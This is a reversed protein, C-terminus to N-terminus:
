AVDESRHHWQANMLPWQLRECGPASIQAYWHLALLVNGTLMARRALWEIRAPGNPPMPGLQAVIAAEVKRRRADGIRPNEAATM